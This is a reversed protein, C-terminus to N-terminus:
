PLTCKIVRCEEILELLEIDSQERNKKAIPCSCPEFGIMTGHNTHLIGTGNCQCM